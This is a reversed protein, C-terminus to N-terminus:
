DGRKKKTSSLTRLCSKKRELLYVGEKVRVRGKEGKETGVVRIRQHGIHEEFRGGWRKGGNGFYSTSSLLLAQRRGRL